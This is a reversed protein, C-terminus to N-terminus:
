YDKLDKKPKANGTNTATQPHPAVTPQPTKDELIPSTSGPVLAEPNIKVGPQVRAAFKANLVGTAINYVTIDNETLEQGSRQKQLIRAAVEEATKPDREFQAKVRNKELDIELKRNVIYEASDLKQDGTILGTRLKPQDVLANMVSEYEPSGQTIGGNRMPGFRSLVSNNENMGQPNTMGGPGTYEKGSNKWAQLAQARTQPDPIRLIAEYTKNLTPQDGEFNGKINPDVQPQMDFGITGTQSQGGGSGDVQAQKLKWLRKLMEEYSLKNTNEANGLSIESDVLGMAKKGAAIQSNMQGGYGKTYLDLMEPTNMANARNGALMAELVKYPDELRSRQLKEEDALNQLQAANDANGANYGQYLAGLAFEPKYGTSIQELGM